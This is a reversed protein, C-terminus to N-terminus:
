SVPVDQDFRLGYNVPTIIHVFIMNEIKVVLAINSFMM